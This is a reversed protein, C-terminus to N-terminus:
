CGLKEIRKQAADAYALSVDRLKDGPARAEANDMAQDFESQLKGCDKLGNIRDYVQQNGPKEGNSGGSSSDSGCGPLIIAAVLLGALTLHTISM